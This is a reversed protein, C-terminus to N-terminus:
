SRDEQNDNINTNHLFRNARADIITVDTSTPMVREDIDDSFEEYMHGNDRTSPNAYRRHRYRDGSL